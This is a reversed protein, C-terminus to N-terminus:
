LIVLKQAKSEETKGDATRILARYLYLGAPLRRGSSDTLAWLTTAGASGPAVAFSQSQWVKGGSINYAEFTITGGAERKESSLNCILFTSQRAPNETASLSFHENGSASITFAISQTATNGNVDWVRLMAQHTGSTIEQLPYTLLGSNYSGLNFAFYSNMSYPNNLDNDIVLEIGAAPNTSGVAIGFDDTIDAYLTPSPGVIGGSVFATSNLYMDVQPALTDPESLPATGNLCFSENYGHCEISGDQNTAYLTIRGVADSYSITRPIRIQFDFKGNRISDSGEYIINPRDPYQIPEDAKDYNHCIITEERDAITATVLGQFNTLPQGNQNEVHGSFRAISAAQLREPVAMEKVSKGNISDVVITQTPYALTLAPDGLLVYKLKNMSRDKASTTKDSYLLEVKTRRLAEGMTIKQGANDTAFLHKTLMLNLEKNYNSYVSRAACIMSIAGGTPNLVAVRGIDNMLHDYPAVECSAMIWLPLRGESSINFDETTLVKAYSIQMPSGHGSYDFILGGQQMLERLRSMALPFQFITGTSVRPYSDWFIRKVISRNNTSNELQTAVPMADNMHLNKNGYDALVYIKNKWSGTAENKDYHIAKDVLVRAEEPTDCLFRGIGLDLKNLAYSTGETDDLWGYYDDTVYSALEGLPFSGEVKGLSSENVQFSLLLNRADLNRAEGTILRNDWYSNGFLLLYKPLDAATEARDYLMKMYRRYASADPTGSSFENYLQEADVIRVKLGDHTRHYSALREAEEALKRSAPIIIVMDAISDAHLDQNAVSGVTEPTPYRESTNFIAYRRTGDPITALLFGDNGLTTQVLAAPQARNQLALLRTEATAEAIQLTVVGNSNPTFSFPADTAYLQRDYRIRLYNLRASNGTTTTIKITNEAQLPITTNWKKRAEYGSQAEGYRNVSMTGIQTGAMQLEVATIATKSAASMAAYVIAENSAPHPTKVKFSRTNGYAFDYSDYLERGGRYWFEADNDLVSLYNVSSLLPTDAEQAAQITALTLPNEGETLFYYSYLSYPNQAHTGLAPDTRLTGEAFFVITGDERRILPIECLDDPTGNATTFDWAEEIIRGGYGYLKVKEPQSFGLKSLQSPSFQYFGEDKVRIKTWKGEALVSHAKWREPMAGTPGSLRHPQQNTAMEYCVKGAVLRCLKGEKYIIPTFTLELLGERRSMGLTQEIRLTSDVTLQWRQLDNQEQRSLPVYEPYEIWVRWVAAPSVEGVNYQLQVYPLGDSTLPYDQPSFTYFEGPHTQALSDQVMQRAPLIRSDMPQSQALLPSGLLASLFIAFVSKM